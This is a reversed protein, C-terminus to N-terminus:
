DLRILDAVFARFTAEDLGQGVVLWSPHAGRDVVIAYGGGDLVVLTGTQDGFPADGSDTGAAVCGDGDDCFAGQHLSLSAGSPGKYSIVLRGVGQGSYSGTNVSWRAPLVACYVPWDLNAAAEVFFARNDDTGTCGEVADAAPSESPVGSPSGSSTPAVTPAESSLASPASSAFASPPATFPALSTSPTTTAAEGGICGAVLVALAAVALLVLTPRHRVAAPRGPSLPRPPTV